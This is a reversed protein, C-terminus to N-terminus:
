VENKKNEEQLNKLGESLVVIIKGKELDISKVVDSIAPILIQKGLQNKVVYVDNSGTSFIDEIKGLLEDKEDYVMLGILDAIFYTDKPLKKADKRNIKLYCDRYKEAEEITDIGELKLLVQNKQYRVEQIKVSILEKKTQILVEKLEEFRKVDDTFPNIKVVGKLGQTNVIQGIELYELM